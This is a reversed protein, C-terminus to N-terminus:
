TQAATVAGLEWLGMRKDAYIGGSHACREDILALPAPFCFPEAEMNLVRWGGTAIDANQKRAVFTTALLYRSGSRGFKQIAARADAYSLHVLADRCIILDATPLDARTMDACVFGRDPAAHVRQNRDILERVIDIGTYSLQHDALVNRMWNFDGCPADVISRVNWRMLLAALEDQFDRGRSESSGPGSVSEPDGWANRQFIGTFTARQARTSTRGSIGM